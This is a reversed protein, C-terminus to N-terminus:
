SAIEYYVKDGREEGFKNANDFSKVQLLQKWATVAVDNEQLFNVTKAAPQKKPAVNRDFFNKSKRAHFQGAATNQIAPDISSILKSTDEILKALHQESRHLKQYGCRIENEARRLEILRAVKAALFQPACNEYLFDDTGAEFAEVSTKRSEEDADGIMLFLAASLDKDARVMRCLQVGSIDPLAAASIILDPRVRQALCFGESAGTAILLDYGAEQLVSYVDILWDSNNEILLITNQTQFNEM